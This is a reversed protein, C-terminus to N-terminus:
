ARGTGKCDNCSLVEECFDHIELHAGSGSCTPCPRHKAQWRRVVRNWRKTSYEESWFEWGLDLYQFDLDLTITGVSNIEDGWGDLATYDPIIQPVEIQVVEGTHRLEEFKRHTRWWRHWQRVRNEQTRHKCARLLVYLRSTNTPLAFARFAEAEVPHEALLWSFFASARHM